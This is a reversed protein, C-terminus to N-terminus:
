RRVRAGGVVANLRGRTEDQGGIALKIMIQRCMGPFTGVSPVNRNDPHGSIVFVNQGSVSARSISYIIGCRKCKRYEWSRQDFRPQMDDFPNPNGDMIYFDHSIVESIERERGRSKLFNIFEDLEIM